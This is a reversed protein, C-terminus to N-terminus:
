TAGGSEFLQIAQVEDASLIMGNLQSRRQDTDIQVPHSDVFSQWQESFGHRRGGTLVFDRYWSFPLVKSDVFPPEALYVFCDYSEGTALESVKQTMATIMEVRYGLGVGEFRDLIPRAAGPLRYIVGEASLDKHPQHVLDCKASGDSGNKRFAMTYDPLIARGLNECPGVRAILRSPSLNSGYAFYYIQDSSEPDPM